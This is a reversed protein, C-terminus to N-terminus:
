GALLARLYAASRTVFMDIDGLREEEFAVRDPVEGALMRARYRALLQVTPDPGGVNRAHDAIWVPHSRPVPLRGRHAGSGEISLRLDPNATLLVDLIASWDLVGDGCPALYRVLDAGDDFLAVDRLHTLRITTGLRRVVDLPHEGRAVCNAPDFTVGVVDPGVADIVRELEGSTIEEHTELAVRSGQARLVPALARLFGITARLQEEWTVDTRFRDVAYLGFAAPKQYATATWLEHCGAAAAVEVMRTMAALYDGGGLDRVEPLEATMYPNVKGIGLDLYLGRDDAFRRIEALLGGDLTPVLEVLTRVLVGDLGLAAVGDLMAFPDVGVVSAADLQARRPQALKIDRGVPAV